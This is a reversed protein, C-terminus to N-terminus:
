RGRGKQRCCELGSSRVTRRPLDSKSVTGWNSCAVVCIMLQCM